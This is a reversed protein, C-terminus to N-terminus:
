HRQPQHQQQHERSHHRSPANSTQGETEQETEFDAERDTRQGYESELYLEPYDRSSTDSLEDEPFKDQNAWRDKDNSKIEPITINKQWHHTWYLEQNYPNGDPAVRQSEKCICTCYLLAVFVTAFGAVVIVIGINWVFAPEPLQLVIIFGLAVLIVALNILILLCCVGRTNPCFPNPASMTEVIVGAKTSNNAFVSLESKKSSAQSLHSRTPVLNMGGPRSSLSKSQTVKSVMTSHSIRSPAPTDIKRPPRSPAEMKLGSKTSCCTNISLLYFWHELLGM